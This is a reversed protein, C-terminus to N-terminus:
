LRAVVHVVEEEDVRKRLALEVEFPPDAVPLSLPLSPRGL